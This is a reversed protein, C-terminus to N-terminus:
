GTQNHGYLSSCCRFVFRVVSYWGPLGAAIKLLANTIHRPEAYNM